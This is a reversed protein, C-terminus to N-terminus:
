FLHNLVIYGFCLLPFEEGDGLESAKRRQHQRDQKLLGVNHFDTPLIIHNSIDMSLVIIDPVQKEIYTVM